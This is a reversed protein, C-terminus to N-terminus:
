LVYYIQLLLHFSVCFGWVEQEPAVVSTHSYKQLPTFIYLFIYKQIHAHIFNVALIFIAGMWKNKTYTVKGFSNDPIKINYNYQLIHRFGLNSWWLNQYWM